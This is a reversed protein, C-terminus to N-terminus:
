LSKLKSPLTGFFKKFAATFHQPNKYGMLLSVESISKNGEQLIEKAQQMKLANVYRYITTNFTRKFGKKLDFENMGVMRSLVRITPPTDLNTELITKAEYLADQETSTPQNMRATNHLEAQELQLMLLELIKAELFLRKLLGTRTCQLITNVIWKMPLTMPSTSLQVFPNQGSNITHIFNKQLVSYGSLLDIYFPVPFNIELGKQQGNDPTLRLREQHGSTFYITQQGPLISQENRGALSTRNGTLNFYLGISTGKTEYLCVTPNNLYFNLISVHFSGFQLFEGQFSGKDSKNFTFQKEQNVGQITITSPITTESKWEELKSETAM